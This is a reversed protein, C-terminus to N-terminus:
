VKFNVIVQEAVLLDIQINFGLFLMNSLKGIVIIYLIIRFLASYSLLEVISCLFEM